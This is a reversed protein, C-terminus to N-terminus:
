CLVERHYVHFGWSSDPGRRPSLATISIEKSAFSSVYHDVTEKITKLFINDASCNLDGIIVNSVDLIKVSNAIGVGFYYGAQELINSATPDTAALDLIQDFPVRHVINLNKAQAYKNEIARKTCFTELCGRKGCVCLDGNIDITTHGIYGSNGFEGEQLKSNHVIAMGIGTRYAIFLFDELKDVLSRIGLALMHADNRVLVPAGFREEILKNVPIRKWDTIRSIQEPMNNHINVTGPMGLGIGLIKSNDLGLEDLGKQINEILSETIADPRMEFDLEWKHYYKINENLDTIVLRMPPFEFDIGIAFHYNLNFAYLVPQRGGSSEAYGYKELINEEILYEIIKLVTPRSLRTKYVMDEVTLPGYKRITNLLLYINAKKILRSNNAM